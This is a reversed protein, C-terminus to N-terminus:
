RKPPVVVIVFRAPPGAIGFLSRQETVEERSGGYRRMMSDIVAVCDQNWAACVLAIGHRAVKPDSSSEMQPAFYPAASDLYFAVGNAMESDGGIYRLPDGTRERWFRDIERAAQDYHPRESPFHNLQQVLAVAPAAVIAAVPVVIALALIRAAARRSISLSPPSLLVVPLLTWNPITWLPTLRTPLVVDIVAPLVIPAWLAVAIMRREATNPLILDALTARSPRMAAVIALPVVIYAAAGALYWLSDLISDSVTAGAMAGGIYSLTERHGSALFYLHPAIVALGVASTIWPATSTFYRRRDPNVLSALGLGAILYISWYKTLLACGATLGALTAYIPDCTALSRLFFFTAAAWFPIMATNANFKLAQFTLLPVLTLMALAAVRKTDDLWDGFIEWAIRLSLGVASAVLLYSAWAARPFIRFWAGAVLVSMPPHYFGVSLERSVGVLQGVDYHVDQGAHSIIGYLTWAAVFAALCWLVGRERRAPDILIGLLRDAAAVITRM